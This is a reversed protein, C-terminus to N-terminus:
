AVFAQELRDLADELQDSLANAERPQWDALANELNQKLRAAERIGPGLAEQRAKSWKMFTLGEDLARVM